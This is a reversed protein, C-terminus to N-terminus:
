AAATGISDARRDVAMLLPPPLLLDAILALAIILATLLGVSATPVFPSVVLILFGAVLVASTTFIARGVTRLAYRVADEPSYGHESRARRYKSLFHATDDVVIGITM